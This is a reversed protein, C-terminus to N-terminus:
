QAPGAQGGIKQWHEIYDKSIGYRVDATRYQWQERQDVSIGYAPPLMDQQGWNVRQTESLNGHMALVVKCKNLGHRRLAPGMMYGFFKYDAVDVVDIPLHAAAAAYNAAHLYDIHAWHPQDLSDFVWTPPSPYTIKFPVLKANPPRIASAEEKDGFYYFTIGPNTEILRRYVTQGGGVSKYLDFEVLLVNMVSSPTGSKLM